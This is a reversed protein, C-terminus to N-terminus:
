VPSLVLPDQYNKFNVCYMTGRSTINLRPLGVLRNVGPSIGWERGHYTGSELTPVSKQWPLYSAQSAKTNGTTELYPVCGGPYSM